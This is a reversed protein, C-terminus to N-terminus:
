FITFPNDTLTALSQLDLALPQEDPLLPSLIFTYRVQQKAWSLQSELQRQRSLLLQYEGSLAEFGASVQEVLQLVGDQAQTTM